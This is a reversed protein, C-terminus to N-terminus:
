YEPGIWGCIVCIPKLVDTYDTSQDVLLLACILLYLSASRM